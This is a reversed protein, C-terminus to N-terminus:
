EAIEVSRLFGASEEPLATNIFMGTGLEFGAMQSVRPIVALYWHFFKSDTERPSLSRIMYNFDPNDLGRYLRLLVDKLLSALDSLETDSISGFYGNHRKPFVWLHFPSLAAYPIFAVFSNNESVIRSGDAMEERIMSCYLCEGFNGYYYSKIAEELRHMVQGPFVATGVIQSHPHELSTGAGQGHNKFIIVHEIRPDEYFATIREKYAVLIDGIEELSLLATTVNHKPTEIIVEHLGVGPIYQKSGARHKLIEGDPDLASFKNRVVRVRWNTESDAVRFSEGPTKEENGPCFPCSPSYEPLERKEKAQTFEEPRKARETAIIVWDGTVMNMRVESM